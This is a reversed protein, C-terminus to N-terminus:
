GAADKDFSYLTMGAADVLVGGEVKAPISGRTAACGGLAIAVVAALGRLKM